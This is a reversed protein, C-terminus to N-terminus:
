HVIPGGGPHNRLKIPGFKSEYLQLNQELAAHLFKAHVPSMVFRARVSARQSHPPLFLGDIVFETQNHFIRAMNVYEGLAVEPDLDIQIKVANPNKDQEEAM